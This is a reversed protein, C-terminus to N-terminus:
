YGMNRRRVIWEISLLVLAFLLLPLWELGSQLTVQEHLITAPIGAQVFDSAAQQPSTTKWDGLFQGGNTSSIRQLLNHNAPQSTQELQTNEVVLSGSKLFLEQDVACTASWKYQGEPMKGFDLEYREGNFRLTKLFKEGEDNTLAADIEANKSMTWGADYAEATFYISMDSAIRSETQINFREKKDNAALYQVHRQVLQDFNNHSNEQMFNRMRWNWLGEGMTLGTRAGSVMKRTAWFVETTEIYGLQKYLLPTWAPSWTLPAIPGTMPPWTAMALGLEKENYDILGYSPNLRSRHTQQLESSASLRVDMDNSSRLYDYAEESAALWWVNANNTSMWEPWTKGGWTKGLLNHAIIVDSKDLAQLIKSADALRSLYIIEVDYADLADLSMAIAGADPHPADAICTVLRRSELVDVYFTRENNEAVFESPGESAIIRYRQTGVATAPLMFRIKQVDQDSDCMWEQQAIQESGNFVQVLGQQGKMGQSHVVAEVPFTNNLYAVQNHNVRAIWRDKYSTTDGLGLTFIPALPWDTGYEPNGGRNARGDTALIVGAVNRNEIRNNLASASASINTQTGEWTIAEDNSIVLPALDRDFGYWESTLEFADLENKFEMLWSDLASAREKDTQDENGGSRGLVSTSQDILVIAVPAEKELEIERILPELLLFALITIACWRLLGLVLRGGTNLGGGTSKQAIRVGSRGYLWWASLFGPAGVALWQWPEAEIIWQSPLSLDM